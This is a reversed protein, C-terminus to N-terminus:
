ERERERQPVVQLKQPQNSLLTTFLKITNFRVYFEQEALLELLLTVNDPNKIFIDTFVMGNDHDPPRQGNPQARTPFIYYSCGLFFIM